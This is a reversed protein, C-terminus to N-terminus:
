VYFLPLNSQMFVLLWEESFINLSAFCCGPRSQSVLLWHLIVAVSQM